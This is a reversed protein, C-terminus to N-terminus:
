GGTVQTLARELEDVSFPGEIRSRIRGNEDIVFLWPESQLNWKVVQPRLGKSVENDRYIEQHIFAAGRAGRAKVQEAIDVVPGCVRSQCLAPTAFLLVVPKKGVVDAFDEDHMTSPPVRTDISSLNGSVSAKTPTSVKPASEGVKPVKGNARVTLPGGAPTAMVFRDDLRVVGLVEYRGPKRFRLDAVYVSKAADKDKEVGASRFEADTALSEYRAPFPGRAKGGGVPAVYVAVTAEALQSRARDFLGFGFRNTGPELESVATALVPGAKAGPLMGRLEALSRGAPKPFDKPAAM